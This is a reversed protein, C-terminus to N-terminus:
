GFDRVNGLGLRAFARPFWRNPRRGGTSRRITRIQGPRITVPRSAVGASGVYVFRAYTTVAHIRVYIGKGDKRPLDVEHSRRLRGTDIPAELRTVTLITRVNAAYWLNALKFKLAEAEAQNVRIDGM